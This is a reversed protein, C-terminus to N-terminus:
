TDLWSAWNRWPCLKPILSRSPRFTSKCCPAYNVEMERYYARWLRTKHFCCVLVLAKQNREDMIEFNWKGKRSKSSPNEENHEQIGALLWDHYQRTQPESERIWKAISRHRDSIFSHIKFGANKLFKFCRKAGFLEMANSSGAQNAQCHFVTGM